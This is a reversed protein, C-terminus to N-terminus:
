ASLARRRQLFATIRAQNDTLTASASSATQAVDSHSGLKCGDAAHVLTITSLAQSACGKECGSVHLTDAATLQSALSRALQRTEGLASTCAPAGPCAEVRLLPDTPEGIFGARRVALALQTHDREAVDPLLLSREPTVRLEGSGYREALEALLTLEDATVAGFPLGVGFFPRLGAHYGIACSARTARPVTAAPAVLSGRLSVLERPDQARERWRQRTGADAACLQMLRWVAQPVVSVPCRGLWVARETDGAIGLWAQEPAAPDLEIRIDGHCTALDGVAGDLVVGFKSPLGPLPGGSRLQSELARVLQSLEVSGAALGARPSVLLALRAELESDPDALGLELLAHQLEPLAQERLGRFQLNARRTLELQGNGLRRALEAVARLEGSRLARAGTRLRVILGDGSLM